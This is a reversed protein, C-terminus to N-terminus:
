RIISFNYKIYITERLELQDQSSIQDILSIKIQTTLISADSM